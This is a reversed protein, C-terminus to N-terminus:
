KSSKCPIVDLCLKNDTYEHVFCNDTNQTYYDNYKENLAISSYSYNIIEHKVLTPKVM